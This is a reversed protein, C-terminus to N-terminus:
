SQLLDFRYRAQGLGLIRSRRKGHAEWRWMQSSAIFGSVSPLHKIQNTPAAPNSGVVELGGSKFAVVCWAGALAVALRLGSSFM